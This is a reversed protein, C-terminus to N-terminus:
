VPVAAAAKAALDRLRTLNEREAAILESILGAAEPDNRIAGRAAEVESVLRQEDAILKGLLYDLAVYHLESFDPYNDFDVAEARRSLLDVLRGVFQQQRAALQEVAKQEPSKGDPSEASPTWPWCEVTYQLLSRYIRPVLRSLIENSTRDTM